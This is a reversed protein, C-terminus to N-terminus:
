KEVFKEIKESLAELEQLKSIKEAKQFVRDTYEEILKGVATRIAESRSAFEGVKIFTDIARLEREPLRVTVRQKKM